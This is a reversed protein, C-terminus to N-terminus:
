KVRPARFQFISKYDPPPATKRKVIQGHRLTALYWCLLAYVFARDDHKKNRVEPPFNYTIKGNTQYKCMTVIEDKM